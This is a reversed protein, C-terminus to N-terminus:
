RISVFPEEHSVDMAAGKCAAPVNFVSPDKIGLSIASYGLSYWYEVNPGVDGNLMESIPICDETMFLTMNIGEYVYSYIGGKLTNAGSGLVMPKYTADDPMCPDPFSNLPIKQCVGNRLTYQIKAKYDKLQVETTPPYGDISTQSTTAVKELMADYSITMSTGQQMAKGNVEVLGIMGGPSQFQKPICCKPAARPKPKDRIQERMGFLKTMFMPRERDTVKDANEQQCAPPINFVSSDKIGITTGNYGFSLVFPTEGQKSVTTNSFPVCNDSVLLSSIRGPSVVVYNTVNIKHDGIGFYMPLPPTANDPICAKTFPGTLTSKKCVGGSVSYKMKGPYDMLVHETTKKQGRTITYESVIKGNNEDYSTRAEGQIPSMKGSVVETGTIYETREWQPPSCCKSGSSLTIFGTFCILSLTIM